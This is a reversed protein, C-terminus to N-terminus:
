RLQSDLIVSVPLAVAKMLLVSDPYWSTTLRGKYQNVKALDLSLTKQTLFLFLYPVLSGIDLIKILCFPM